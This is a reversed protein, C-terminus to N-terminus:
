GEERDLQGEDLERWEFPESAAEKVPISGPVAASRGRSEPDSEETQIKRSGYGIVEHILIDTQIGKPRVWREGAPNLIVQDGAAQLTETSILIEDDGTFGEIRSALNVNRGIMDYKARTQSQKRKQHLKGSASLITNQM